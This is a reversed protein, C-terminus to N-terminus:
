WHRHCRRHGIWVWHRPGHGHRRGMWPWHRHHGCCMDDHVYLYVSDGRYRRAPYGAKVHQYHLWRTANLRYDWYASSARRHVRAHPRKRERGMDAIHTVLTRAGWPEAPRQMASSPASWTAVAVGVVLAALVIPRRM